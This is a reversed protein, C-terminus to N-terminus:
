LQEQTRVFAAATSIYTVLETNPIVVDGCSTRGFTCLGLSLVSPALPDYGILSFNWTEQPAIGPVPEFSEVSLWAGERTAVAHTKSSQDRM